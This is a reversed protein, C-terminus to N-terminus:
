GRKAVTWSGDGIDSKVNGSMSHSDPAVKGTFSGSKDQVHAMFTFNGAADVKIEECPVDGVQPLTLVGSLAKGERKVALSIDYDNGEIDLNGQWHGAVSTQMTEEPSVFLNGIQPVREIGFLLGAGVVLGLAFSLLSKRM